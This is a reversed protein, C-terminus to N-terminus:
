FLFGCVLATELAGVNIINFTHFAAWSLSEGSTAHQLCKGM